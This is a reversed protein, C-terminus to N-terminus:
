TTDFQIFASAWKKGRSSTQKQLGNITVLTFM